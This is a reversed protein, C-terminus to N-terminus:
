TAIRKLVHDPFCAAYSALESYLRSQSQLLCIIIPSLVCLASKILWFPFVVLRLGFWSLLLLVFFGTAASEFGLYQSVKASELCVDSPDHLLM